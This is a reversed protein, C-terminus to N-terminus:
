DQELFIGAFLLGAAIIYIIHDVILPYSPITFTLAGLKHLAPVATLIIILVGMVISIWRMPGEEKVGEVVLSRGTFVIVVAIVYKIIGAEGFTFGIIKLAYLLPLLGLILLIASHVGYRVKRPLIFTVVLVLLIIITVINTVFAESVM